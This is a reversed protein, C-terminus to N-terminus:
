LLRDIRFPQWPLPIKPNCNEKKFKASLPRAPATSIAACDHYGHHHVNHLLYSLHPGRGHCRVELRGNVRRRVRAQAVPDHHIATRPHDATARAPGTLNNKKKLFFLVVIM